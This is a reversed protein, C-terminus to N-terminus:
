QGGNDGDMVTENPIEIIVERIPLVEIRGAIEGSHELKEKTGWRESYRRALFDRAAQWSEPIQQQWQAVIRVEADAEAKAVAVYFGHYKGSRAKKGKGMWRRFTEYEVGAYACAAEYYNGSAIANCIKTQTEPTLKSPRGPPRKLETM